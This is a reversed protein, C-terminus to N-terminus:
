RPAALSKASNTPAKDHTRARESSAPGPMWRRCYAGEQSPWGTQGKEQSCRFCFLGVLRQFDHHLARAAGVIRGSGCKREQRVPGKPLRLRPGSRGTPRLAVQSPSEARQGGRPSVSSFSTALCRCTKAQPAQERARPTESVSRVEIPFSIQCGRLRRIERSHASRMMTSHAFRATRM